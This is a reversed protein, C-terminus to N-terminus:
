REESRVAHRDALQQWAVEMPQPEIAEPLDCVVQTVDIGTGPASLSELLMGQQMPSLASTEAISVTRSKVDHAMNFEFRINRRACFSTPSSRLIPKFIPAFPAIWGM